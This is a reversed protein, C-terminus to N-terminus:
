PILTVISSTHTLTESFCSKEQDYFIECLLDSSFFPFRQLNFTISRALPSFALSCSFIKFFHTSDIISFFGTIARDEVANSQQPNL